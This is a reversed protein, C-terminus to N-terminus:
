THSVIRGDACVEVPVAVVAEVHQELLSPTREESGGVFSALEECRCACRSCPVCSISGSFSQISSPLSFMAQKRRGWGNRVGEEDDGGEKDSSKGM